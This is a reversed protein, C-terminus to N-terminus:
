VEKLIAEERNERRESCFYTTRKQVDDKTRFMQTTQQKTEAKNYPM